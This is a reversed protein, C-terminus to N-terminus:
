YFQFYGVRHWCPLKPEPKYHNSDSGFSQFVPGYRVAVPRETQTHTLEMNFFLLCCQSNFVLGILVKHWAYKGIIDASSSLLEHVTICSIYLAPRAHGEGSLFSSSHTGGESFLLLLLFLFSLSYVLIILFNM